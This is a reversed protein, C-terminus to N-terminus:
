HKQLSEAFIECQAKRLGTSVVPGNDTFELYKKTDVNYQPWAPLSGGDPNGTKAFNTWYAQMAKSIASDAADHQVQMGNFAGFSGFVYAVESAHVAGIEPHGPVGRSFQYQYTPHGARSNWDAV